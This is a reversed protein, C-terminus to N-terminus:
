SNNPTKTLNEPKDEIILHEVSEAIPITVDLQGSRLKVGGESKDTAEYIKKLFDPLNIHAREYVNNQMFFNLAGKRTLSVFYNTAIAFLALNHIFLPVEHTILRADFVM